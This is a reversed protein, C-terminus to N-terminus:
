INDTDGMTFHWRYEKGLVQNGLENKFCLLPIKNYALFGFRLLIGDYFSGRVSNTSITSVKRRYFEEISAALLKKFVYPEDEITLFDVIFGQSINDSFCIKTVIYGVIDRNKNRAILISYSDPNTVYRWQLYEKTRILMVDYNKSAQEWFTDLDDPFSLEQCVSIGSKAIGCMGVKLTARSAWGIIPSLVPAFSSFPLKKKLLHKANLPKILRRLQIPVPVHDLKKIYGPLSTEKNPTNYILNIGKNIISERAAKSLETFIGRRQYDPHTFSDGMEAGNVVTELIKIRKPTISKIGVLTDGDEALWMEGQPVPNKYCKWRYYEPEYSRTSSNYPFFRKRFESIRQLDEEKFLRFTIGEPM